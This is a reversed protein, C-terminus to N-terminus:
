YMINSRISGSFLVPEQPVIAVVKHLYSPDLDKIDIEDLLISGSCVDYFRELLCLVTSKGAGSAGVFAITQNPRVELSFSKLVQVDPRTPYHFDVNKFEIKGITSTPYLGGSSRIKPETELIQFIRCSFLQMETIFPPHLQLVCFYRETAGVANMFDSYLGGLLGMGMAILITYMVFATLSGVSLEGNLVLVAGYYIVVIIAFNAMSGLGGVFLGYGLARQAGLSYSAEVKTNYQHMALEEAAFSKMIRANSVNETGVDSAAAM